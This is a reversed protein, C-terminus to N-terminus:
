EYSQILADYYSVANRLVEEDFDFRETHLGEHNQSTGVGLFTFLIKTKEGYYAFDEALMVPTKLEEISAVRAARQYLDADNILPPYLPPCSFSIVCDYVREKERIVKEMMGAVRAFIKADYTRLTGKLTVEQAVSNRAYGGHIEGINLVVTDFPSIRRSLLTQFSQIIETAIVIADIGEQQLGAHAQKGHITIDLEGCQAMLAGARSFLHGYPLTPMLHIGYMAMIQMESLWGSEVLCKAGGPSEEAPQFMFILTYHPHANQYRYALELLAAMHGDHGCAHMQGEHKSRYSVDNKEPIPLGDIDSRFCIASKERGAVVVYLGTDLFPLPYTQYHMKKLEEKLYQTTQYEELGLEPIQHLERRWKKIRDM